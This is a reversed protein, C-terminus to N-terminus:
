GCVHGQLESRGRCGDERRRPRSLEGFNQGVNFAENHVLKRPAELVAVFARPIDEIHVLPRWPMGDSKILVDGTTCPM